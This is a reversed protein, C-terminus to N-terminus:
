SGVVGNRTDKVGTNGLIDLRLIRRLDDEMSKVDILSRHSTTDFAGRLHDTTPATQASVPAPINGNLHTNVSNQSATANNFHNSPSLAPFGPLQSGDLFKAHAVERRLGSSLPRPRPSGNATDALPVQRLFPLSARHQTPAASASPGLASSPTPPGSVYRPASGPRISPSAPFSTPSADFYRSSDVSETSVSAPRQTQPTLLLMKLAKTKARRQEEDHDPPVIMNSPATNLRVADMRQKYPTTFAPGLSAPPAAAGDMELAFMGGNSEDTLHRSHHRSPSESFPTSISGPVLSSRLPSPRPNGTSLVPASSKRREAKEHRDAKFFIDLPSEERAQQQDVIQANEKLLGDGNSEAADKNELARCAAGSKIDPVSKSFFSPMPLASPAPSAHFTPGAYAAKAPTAASPGSISHSSQSPPRTAVANAKIVPSSFTRQNKMRIKQAKGAKTAVPEPRFVATSGDQLDGTNPALTISASRGAGASSLDPPELTSQHQHLAPQKTELTSNDTTSHHPDTTPLGHPFPKRKSQQNRRPGKPPPTHTVSSM